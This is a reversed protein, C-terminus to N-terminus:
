LRGAADLLEILRRHRRVDHVRILQVGGLVMLAAAAASVEDRDEADAIGAVAGLFSKRSAGGLVPLGLGVFEDMRRMLEWNQRVSKGFGLGPDIAICNRSTGAEVAAEVRGELFQGVTQVIDGGACQPEEAYETSFRDDPPAAVRHMLVIGAGKGAALPLMDGDELGASEDNIISVGADMAAEAVGASTTDISLPVTDHLGRIVPLVRNIQEQESVRAAGPRTSEGGIDIISAGEEVLANGHAIAADADIFRGGDSFSDPTVNLIGVLVPRELDITGDSCQWTTSSAAM